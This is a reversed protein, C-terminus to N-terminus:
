EDFFMNDTMRTYYKKYLKEINVNEPKGSMLQMLRANEEQLIKDFSKEQEQIIEEELFEAKFYDQFVRSIGM